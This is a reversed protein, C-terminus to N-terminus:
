IHLQITQITNLHLKKSMDFHDHLVFIPIHGEVCGNKKKLYIIQYITNLPHVPTLIYQTFLITWDLLYKSVILIIYTTWYNSNHQSTIKKVHWFPQPPPFHTHPGWNYWFYKNSDITSKVWYIRVGTLGSFM